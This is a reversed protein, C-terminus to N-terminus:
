TRMAATREPLVTRARTARIAKTARDGKDGKDGKAGQAGREGPVGQEGREGTAGTAGKINVTDPNSLGGDNTWSLNGASDVSPTFTVGDAGNAGDAGPEGKDGKLMGADIKDIIQNYVDPTPDAPVGSGSLICTKMLVCASTTTHLNGAYVGIEVSATDLIIPMPCENGTFVVDTYQGAYKFRATKTAHSKWEDDFDFVVVYDSNGCVGVFKEKLTAIKNSINIEINKM